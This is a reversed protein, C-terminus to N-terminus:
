QLVGSVWEDSSILELDDAIFNDFNIKLIEDMDVAVFYVMDNSTNGYQDVLDMGYCIIVANYKTEENRVLLELIDTVESRISRLVAGDTFNENAQLYLSINSGEDVVVTNIKEKDMNTKQGVAEAVLAKVYAEAGLEAKMDKTVADKCGISGMAIFIIFLLIAWVLCGLKNIKKM